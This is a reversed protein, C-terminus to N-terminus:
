SFVRQEIARLSTRDTLRGYWLIDEERSLAGSRQLNMWRVWNRNRLVRREAPNARHNRHIWGANDVIEDKEAVGHCGPNARFGVELYCSRASCCLADSHIFSHIFLHIFSSIQKWLSHRVRVSGSIYIRYPLWICLTSTLRQGQLNLPTKLHFTVSNRCKFIWIIVEILKHLKASEVM